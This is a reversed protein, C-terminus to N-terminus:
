GEDLDASDEAAEKIRAEVIELMRTLYVRQSKWEPDQSGISYSPKWWYRTSALHGSIFAFEAVTDMFSEPVPGKRSLLTWQEALGVTFPIPSKAIVWSGPCKGALDYNTVFSKKNAKKAFKRVGARYDSITLAKRSKAEMDYEDVLPESLLTQWVDERIMAYNVMLPDVPFKPFSHFGETGPKPCVTLEVRYTSGASIMTVYDTLKSALNELPEVGDNDCNWRVRVKGWEVEDILYGGPGEGEGYLKLGFAQVVATINRLTPVGPTTPLEDEDQLKSSRTGKDHLELAVIPTQREVRVRQEWLAELLKDFGMDKSAPVDHYVNSGYGVEILDRQFGEMWLDRAPGEEVDEVTGYDNYKAKLPFTRPFWIGHMYCPRDRYPNQTLLYVRVEDGGQIPFGSIACTYSFSGM